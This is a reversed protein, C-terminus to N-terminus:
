GEKDPTDTTDVKVESFKQVVKAFVLGLVFSITTTSPDFRTSQTFVWHMWEVMFGSVAFFAFLRVSSPSGNTESLYGVGKM